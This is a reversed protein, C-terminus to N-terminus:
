ENKYFRWNIKITRSLVFSIWLLILPIVVTFMRAEASGTLSGGMYLCFVFIAFRIPFIISKWNILTPILSFLLLVIIIGNPPFRLLTGPRQLTYSYPYNFLIRGLNCLCNKIFKLPHAKINSIAIKKLMDDQQELSLNSLKEFDSKHNFKIYDETGPINQCLSKIELHDRHRFATITEVKETTDTELKPDAFWSGYEENNPTSMWYMNNGATNGWYFFRGTLHYTYALYPVTTLFAILLIILGKRYNESFRNSLWLIMNGALMFLLVYGFIIKTLAMFGFTLGALYLYKNINKTDANFSKVLFYLFVSILFPAITEPLILFFYEYQNYNFAWFLGVIFAIRISVIQEMAKYLFVISLYYLVANLLTISVLSLKLAVFPLIVLPYGPGVGLYLPLAPSTFLSFLNKSYNLYVIEDGVMVQKNFVLIAVFAFILFPSFFLFPNKLIGNKISKFIKM